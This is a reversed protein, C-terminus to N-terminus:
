PFRPLSSMSASVIFSRPVFRRVSRYRSSHHCSSFCSTEPLVLNQNIDSPLVHVITTYIFIFKCSLLMNPKANDGFMLYGLIAIVLYVGAGTGISGFVVSNTRRETNSKLENFVAFINQHCTFAFVFVPLKSLFSLQPDWLRILDPDIPERSPDFYYYVTLGFLYVVAFLAIASTYKLSDLRRLYSVPVILIMSFSIWARRSSLWHDPDLNFVNQSLTEMLSGIVILYSVAVGFCKIAIATDFFVAANPFTIKSIANFSSTRGM